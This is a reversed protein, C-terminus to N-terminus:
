GTIKIMLKSGFSPMEGLFLTEYCMNRGGVICIDRTGDWVVSVHLGSSFFFPPKLCSCRETASCQLNSWHNQANIKVWFQACKGLSTLDMAINRGGVVCIDHTCDWLISIHLGLSLFFPPKLCPGLKPASCQLNSGHNHPDIKVGFSPM